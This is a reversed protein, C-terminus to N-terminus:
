AFRRNRRRKHFGWLILASIVGPLGTGIMPGPVAAAFPTVQLQGSPATAVVSGDAKTAFAVVDVDGAGAATSFQTLLKFEDAPTSCNCITGLSATNINVTYVTFGTVSADAGVQFANFPNNPTAGSIGLFNQLTGSAATFTGAHAVALLQGGILVSPNNASVEQLSITAPASQTTPVLFVLELNDITAAPDIRFGFETDAQTQTIPTFQGGDVCTSGCVGQLPDDVVVDAMAPGAALLLAAATIMLYKM